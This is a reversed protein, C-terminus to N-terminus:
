HCRRKKSQKSEKEDDEDDDVGWRLSIEVTKYKTNDRYDRIDSTKAHFRFEDSLQNRLLSGLSPLGDMTQRAFLAELDDSWLCIDPDEEEYFVPVETKGNDIAEMMVSYVYDPDEFDLAYSDYLDELVERKRKLMSAKEEEKYVIYEDHFYKLSLRKQPESMRPASSTEHM